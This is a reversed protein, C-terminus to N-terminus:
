NKIPHPILIELRRHRQSALHSGKSTVVYEKQCVPCMWKEYTHKPKPPTSGDDQRAVKEIRFGMPLKKTVRVGLQGTQLCRSLSPVSVGYQKAVQFLSDFRIPTGGEVQVIFQEINKM